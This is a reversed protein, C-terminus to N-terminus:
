AASKLPAPAKPEVTLLVTSGPAELAKPRARRDVRDGLDHHLGRDRHLSLVAVSVLARDRCVDGGGLEPAAMGALM